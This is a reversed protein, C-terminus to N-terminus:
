TQLGGDYFVWGVSELAQRATQGATNYRSNGGGFALFYARNAADEAMNILLNSYSETTLTVGLFCDDYSKVRLNNKFLNPPVTTLSICNSFISGFEPEDGPHDLSSIFNNSFLGSPVNILSYCDKFCNVFSGVYPNNAFLGEPISVLSSCGEFCSSFGGVSEGNYIFINSPISTLSSSGQFTGAFSVLNTILPIASTNKLRAREQNNIGLQITGATGLSGNIKITYNAASAYTKQKDGNTTYNVPTSGDGWDIILNPNSSGFLRITYTQGPATTQIGLDWTSPVVVPNDSNNDVLIINNFYMGYNSWDNIPVNDLSASFSIGKIVNFNQGVANVTNSYLISSSGYPYATFRLGTGLHEVQYRFAKNFALGTVLANIGGGLPTSSRAFTLQDNNIHNLSFLATNVNNGTIFSIIRSGKNWSYNAEISLSDGSLLSNKNLIFTGSNTSSVGSSGLVFFSQIGISTRGNQNSNSINRLSNAGSSFAWSGFNAKGLGDVWSSTNGYLSGQEAFIDRCVFQPCNLFNTGLYVLNQNDLCTPIDVPLCNSRYDLKIYINPNKEGLNFKYAYKIEGQVKNSIEWESLPPSIIEPRAFSHTFLDIGAFIEKREPTARNYAIVTGINDNGIRDEGPSSTMILNSNNNIVCDFGLQDNLKNGVIKNEIDYINNLSGTFLYMAGGSGEVTNEFPAGILLNEGRADFSVSNGFYGNANQGGIIQKLNWGTISNGSYIYVSGLFTGFRNQNPAGVALLTGNNNLSLNTGFFGNTISFETGIPLFLKQKFGWGNIANGTYVLVGGANIFGLSGDNPGGLLIISGDSNLAVSHGYRGSIYDGTIITKLSWGNISNGTYIFASGVDSGATNDSSSGITLITGDYNIGVSSGFLDTPNDGTFSQRFTWGNIKNGGYAWVVGADTGGFDNGSGGILIVSGNKSISVSNGFNSSSGQGTIVQKLDWGGGAGPSGVYIFTAGVNSGFPTDYNPAGIVLINGDDNLDISEGFRDESNIGSFKQKLYTISTTPFIYEGTRRDGWPQILKGTPAPSLVDRGGSVYILYNFDPEGGADRWVNIRPRDNLNGERFPLFDFVLVNNFDWILKPTVLNPSFNLNNAIVGAQASFNGFM